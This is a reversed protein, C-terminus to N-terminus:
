VMTIIFKSRFKLIKSNFSECMNNLVTDSLGGESFMHRAWITTSHDQLWSHADEDIGKLEDMLRDFEAKYTAKTAKYFLERILVGPHNKRLNNYLHRCCIRHEYQPWNDIFTQVLGQSYLLLLQPTLLEICGIHYHMYIHYYVYMGEALRIYIDMKQESRHRYTAFKHIM